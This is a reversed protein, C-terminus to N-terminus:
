HRDGVLASGHTDQTVLSLMIFGRLEEVLVICVRLSSGTRLLVPKDLAFAFISNCSRLVSVGRAVGLDRCHGCWWHFIRLHSLESLQHTLWRLLRVVSTVKVVVEFLVPGSAGQAAELAQEEAELVGEDM